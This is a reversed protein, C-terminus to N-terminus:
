PWPTARSGSTCYEHASYRFARLVRASRNLGDRPIVALPTAATRPSALGGEQPWSRCLAVLCAEFHREWPVLVALSSQDTSSAIGRASTRM